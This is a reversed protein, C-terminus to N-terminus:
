REEDRGGACLQRPEAREAAEFEPPDMTEAIQTALVLTRKTRRM